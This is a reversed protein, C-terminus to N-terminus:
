LCRPNAYSRSGLVSPFRDCSHELLEIFALSGNEDYLNASSIVWLSRLVSV